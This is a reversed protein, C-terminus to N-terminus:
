ALIPTQFLGNCHSQWHYPSLKDVDHPKSQHDCQQNPTLQDLSWHGRTQNYYDKFQNLKKLLDRENWFLTHDLFERRTTGIVREIFPHSAAVYPVSKIEEIDFIRLNARWRHYLFLPDNDSSLYKPLVQKAIIQNFMRCIDQGCPHSAHVAFGIIRRSYQDIVTMVTHTKLNISECKFFDISWLSDKAHGIFTLWSSGATAPNNDGDSNPGGHKKLIRGVAFYSIIVGFSQYVQMAIRRYGFRPNRKKIDLVLDIIEQSPGKRGSKKKTNNSFLKKYKREVLYKHFKLISAPKVIIAIKRLRSAPIFYALFGFIFRDHTTLNPARYRKRQVTILQQRLAINEAAVAKIGGSKGLKLLTILFCLILQLLSWM